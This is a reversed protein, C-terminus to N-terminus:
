AAAAAKQEDLLDCFARCIERIRTFRARSEGEVTPEMLLLESFGTVSGIMNRFDHRLDKDQLAVASREPGETAIRTLEQQIQEGSNEIYTFLEPAEEGFSAVNPKLQATLQRIERAQALLDSVPDHIPGAPAAAPMQTVNTAPMAAQLARHVSAVLSQPSLPLTEIA